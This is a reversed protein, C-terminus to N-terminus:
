VVLTIAWFALLLLNRGLIPQWPLTRLVAPGGDLMHNRRGMPAWLGFPMEILKATNAYIVCLTGM